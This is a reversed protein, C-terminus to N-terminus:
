AKDWLPPWRSSVKAEAVQAQFPARAQAPLPTSESAKALVRPDKHQGGVRFEFHLHRAPPGALPAVAGVRQGQEVRQGKRVDIKSLHAYVTTRDGSHRLHVVNGFGNQWGAFEVM